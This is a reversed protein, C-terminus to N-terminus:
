PATPTSGAPTGRMPITGDIPPLGLAVRQDRHRALEDAAAMILGLPVRVEVEHQAFSFREMGAAIIGRCVAVTDMGEIGM